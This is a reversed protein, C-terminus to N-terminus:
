GAPRPMLISMIKTDFLDRYTITNEQILGHEAAHDLMEELIRELDKDPEPVATEELEDLEFLEMLRNVTYVKDSEKILGTRLAYETLELINNQIM